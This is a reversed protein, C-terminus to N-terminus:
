MDNGTDIWDFRLSQNGYETPIFELLKYFQKTQTDFIFGGMLYNTNVTIPADETKQAAALNVEFLLYRGDSSWSSLFIKLTGERFNEPVSKKIQSMVDKSDFLSTFNAGNVDVSAVMYNKESDVYTFTLQEGNPKWLLRHRSDVRTHEPSLWIPHFTKKDIDILYIGEQYDGTPLGVSYDHIEGDVIVKGDEIVSLWNKSLPLAMKNIDTPSWEIEFAGALVQRVDDSFGDWFLTDHVGCEVKETELYVLCPSEAQWRATAIIVKDNPSWSINQILAEPYSANAPPFLRFSKPYQAPSRDELTLFDSNWVCVTLNVDDQLLCPFAVYIGDNSWVFYEVSPRFLSLTGSIEIVSFQLSQPLSISDVSMDELHVIIPKRGFFDENYIIRGQPAFSTCQTLFLITLCFVSLGKKM